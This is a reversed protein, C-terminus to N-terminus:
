RIVKTAKGDKVVIYLGNAPEDVRVGQLTYYAAAGNNEVTINEVAAGGFPNEADPDNSLFIAGTALNFYAVGYVDEKVILDDGNPRLVVPEEVPIFGMNQMSGDIEEQPMGFNISGWNADAIKFGSDADIQQDDAFTFKYILNESDICNFKWPVLNPNEDAPYDGNGWDNMNGRFYVSYGGGPQPTTTELKVTSLDGAITITYDGKWPASINTNFGQVLEKEVNVQFGYLCGYIGTEFTGWDDSFTPNGDGDTGEVVPMEVTSMKFAVLNKIDFKFVGDTKEVTMQGSTGWALGEGDGVLYIKDQAAASVAVAAAAALVYFKKM